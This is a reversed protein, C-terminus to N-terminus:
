KIFAFDINQEIIMLIIGILVGVVIEFIMHGQPDNKLEINKLKVVNKGIVVKPKHYKVPALFSIVVLVLGVLLLLSSDM